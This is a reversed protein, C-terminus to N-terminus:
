QGEFYDGDNVVCQQCRKYLKQFSDAFDEKPFSQLVSTVPKQNGGRRCFTLREHHEEPPSVSLIGGYEGSRAGAPVLQTQCIKASAL